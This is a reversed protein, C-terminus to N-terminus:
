LMSLILQDDVVKSLVSEFNLEGMQEGAKFSGSESWPLYIGIRVVCICM